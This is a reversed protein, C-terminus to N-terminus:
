FRFSKKNFSKLMTYVSEGDANGHYKKVDEFNGWLWIERELAYLERFRKKNIRRHKTQKKPKFKEVLKGDIYTDIPQKM